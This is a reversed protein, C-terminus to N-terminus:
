KNPCSKSNNSCSQVVCSVRISLCNDVFINNIRNSIFTVALFHSLFIDIRRCGRRRTKTAVPSKNDRQLFLFCHLRCRVYVSLLIGFTFRTLLASPKDSVLTANKVDRRPVLM